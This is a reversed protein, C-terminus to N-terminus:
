EGLEKIAINYAEKDIAACHWQHKHEMYSIGKGKVTHALIVSPVDKTERAKNFTQIIDGIDNGDCEEVNWNFAKLKEKLDHLPMIDDNSGDLQVKNYDIIVTLNDLKFKPAAMFAEWNQGENLEGDGIIVFTHYTEENMKAAIATGIGFSIGMGSCTPGSSTNSARLCLSGAWLISSM